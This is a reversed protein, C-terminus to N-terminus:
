CLSAQALGVEVGLAVKIWGVTEGCCVYASFQPPPETGSKSPSSPGRRVCHRGPPPRGRYWTADQDMCGYPRFLCACFFQPSQGKQPPPPSPGWRVCLGRPQPRGGYWHCRSAHLRKAVISNPRLNPVPAAGWKQTPAPDGDLVFDGPSLGVLICLAM